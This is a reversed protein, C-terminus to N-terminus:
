RAAGLKSPLANEWAAHLAAVDVDLLTAGGTRRIALRAGGTVGVHLAPVGHRAAIREVAAPDSTSILIRSPGEHFLIFEDRAGNTPLDIGAGIGGFSAEALAVALGGEGLDHASDVASATVM